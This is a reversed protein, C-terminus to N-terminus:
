RDKQRCLILSRNLPNFQIDKDIKVLDEEIKIGNKELGICYGEYRDRVTTQEDYNMTVYAIKRHGLRVLYDVVNEM